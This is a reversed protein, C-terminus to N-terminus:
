LDFLDTQCKVQICVFSMSFKITLFLVTEDNLQTYLFSQYKNFQQHYMAISPVM